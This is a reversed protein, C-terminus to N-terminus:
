KKDSPRGRKQSTMPKIESSDSVIPEIVEEEGDEDDEIVDFAPEDVVIEQVVDDVGVVLKEFYKKRFGEENWHLADNAEQALQSALKYVFVWAIYGPMKVMQGAAVSYSKSHVLFNFDKETVNRVTVQQDEKWWFEKPNM